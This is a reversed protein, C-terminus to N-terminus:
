PSVAEELQDQLTDAIATTPERGTILSVAAAAVIDSIRGFRERQAESDPFISTAEDALQQVLALESGAAPEDDLNRRPIPNGTLERYRHQWQPSCALRIFEWAADARRPDTGEPIHISNSTGGPTRAFPARAVTLAPRIREDAAELESAFFPGELLMAIKGTLFLENRQQSQIGRPAQAVARRYADLGRITEPTTATVRDGDFLSGGTGVVFAALETYNDPNQTTTAGFGYVGGGTVAEAAALLEDTTRPVPHGAARLLSENCYLSYGYGLLLVGYHDGDSAMEEQLPTWSSVIDTGDLRTQLSELWGRGAFEAANRAPLHLIDPRQNAAFRITLQDAYSDFPMPYLNIRIGPNRQEYAAVLERWWPAFSGEEAQWSPFELVLDGTGTQQRGCGVLSATAVAAALGLFGRRSTPAAASM